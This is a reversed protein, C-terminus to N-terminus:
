DALCVRNRGSDKAAYLAKDARDLLESALQLGPSALPNVPSPPASHEGQRPFQPVLNAVGISLTVYPGTSSRDHPIALDKIALRIKEALVGAEALTSGALLIVFEEGGYRAVFDDARSVNHAITKAVQRLCDDGLTHGYRDNYAKFHDIDIMLLSLPHQHRQARRWELTLREDLTRRNPIGTLPDLSSLTRLLDAQAKLQLHVGFRARAIQAHIPKTIFDMAGAGLARIENGSESAATVFIVPIDPYDRHLVKCTQFGDMGPMRADLLVLDIAEEAMLALADEGRTAFCLDGLGELAMGLIQIASPEDDVILIKPLPTM